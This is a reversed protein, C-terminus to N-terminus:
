GAPGALHLDDIKACLGAAFHSASIILPLYDDAMMLDAPRQKIRASETVQCLLCVGPAKSPRSRCAWWCGPVASLSRGATDTDRPEEEEREQENCSMTILLESAALLTYDLNILTQLPWFRLEDIENTRAGFRDPLQVWHLQLASM